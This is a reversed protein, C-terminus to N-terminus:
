LNSNIVHHELRMFQMKVLKKSYLILSDNKQTLEFTIPCAFPGYTLQNNSIFGIEHDPALGMRNGFQIFLKVDYRGKVWSYNRTRKKALKPKLKKVVILCLKKPSVPLEASPGDLLEINHSVWIGILDDPEGGLCTSQSEIIFVIATLALSIYCVKNNLMRQRGGNGNSSNMQNSGSPCIDRCQLIHPLQMGKKLTIQIRM